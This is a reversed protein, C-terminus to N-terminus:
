LNTNWIIEGKKQIFDALLRAMEAAEVPSPHGHQALHPFIFCDVSRDGSSSIYGDVASKLYVPWPSKESVADMSGLAAIILARPYRSRLTQLFQRYVRIFDEAPVDKATWKDNQLINVVVVQPTWKSFDWLTESSMPLARDYITPLTQPLAFGKLLGLGGKAVLHVDAGLLRATSMAYARYPHNHPYGEMSSGDTISDGYFEIRRQPPPLPELLRAGTDLIFGAFEATGSWAGDMRVLELSHEGDPLGECVLVVKRMDLPIIAAQEEKGDIIAMFKAPPGWGAKLRARLSTGTFRIKLTVGPWGIGYFGPKEASIRGMIRIRPDHCPVVEGGGPKERVEVVLDKEDLTTGDKRSTIRFVYHGAVLGDVQTRRTQADKIVAGEPGSVQSWALEFSKSKGGLVVADLGVATEGLVVQPSYVYLAGETPPGSPLM